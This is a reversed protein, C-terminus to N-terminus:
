VEGLGAGGVDRDVLVAETLRGSVERGGDDVRDEKAPHVLNNRAPLSLSM